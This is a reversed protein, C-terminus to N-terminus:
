PVLVARFRVKNAMMHAFADEAKELAFKEIRPRIGTLASFRMTDESDISSGSPWGAITKGSLLAMANV